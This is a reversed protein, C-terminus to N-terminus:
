VPVAALSLESRVGTECKAQEVLRALGTAKECLGRMSWSVPLETRDVTLNYGTVSLLIEM